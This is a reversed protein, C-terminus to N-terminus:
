SCGSTAATFVNPEFGDSDLLYYQFLQSPHDAEPFAQVPLVSHSRAALEALRNKLPVPLNVVDARALITQMDADAHPNPHCTQEEAHAAGFGALALVAIKALPTRLLKQLCGHRNTKASKKM